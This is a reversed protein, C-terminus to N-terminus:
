LMQWMDFLLHMGKVAPSCIYTAKVPRSQRRHTTNKFSSLILPFQKEAMLYIKWGMLWHHPLPSLVNTLLTCWLCHRLSNLLVTDWNSMYWINRLCPRRYVCINCTIKTKSAKTLKTRKFITSFSVFVLNLTQDWYSTYLWLEINIFYLFTSKTITSNYIYVCGMTVNEYKYNKNDHYQEKICKYKTKCIIKLIFDRGKHYKRPM